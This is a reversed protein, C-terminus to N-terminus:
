QSAYARLTQLSEGSLMDFSELTTGVAAYVIGDSVEVLSTPVSITQLLHPQTPDSVDVLDLGGTGDAVAAIQLNSDVSVDTANGPLSLQSDVIPNTFQSADVIALGYSGTAVYATQVGSSAASGALTVANSTGNLALVAAVGTPVGQTGLPDLGDDLAAAASIGLPDPDATYPNMGIAIKGIDPIGDGNSDLGGFYNVKLTGLNTVAGSSNTTGGYLKSRNTSPQYLYLLYSSNPPLFDAIQQGPEVEGAIEFGNTFEFRYYYKPDTGFGSITSRSQSASAALSGLYSDVPTSSQLASQASASPSQSLSAPQPLIRGDAHTHNSQEFYYTLTNFQTLNADQFVLPDGPEIVNSGYKDTIGFNVGNYNLPILPIPVGSSPAQDVAVVTDPVGSTGTAQITATGIQFYFNAPPPEWNAKLLPGASKELYVFGPHTSLAARYLSVKNATTNDTPALDVADGAMHASYTAGNYYKNNQPDRYASTMDVDGGYAKAISDAITNMGNNVVWPAYNSDQDFDDATFYDSHITTADVVSPVALGYDVYEQQLTTPADQAITETDSATETTPTEGPDDESAPATSTATVPESPPVTLTATVTIQYAIPFNPTTSGDTPRVGSM